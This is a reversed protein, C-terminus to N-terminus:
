SGSPLALHSMDVRVRMEGSAIKDSLKEVLESLGAVDVIMYKGQRLRAHAVQKGQRRIFPRDAPCQATAVSLRGDNRQKVAVTYGGCEQPIGNVRTRIQVFQVPYGTRQEKTPQM